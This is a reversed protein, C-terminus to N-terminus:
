KKIEGGKDEGEMIEFLNADADIYYQKTNDQGLKKLLAALFLRDESRLMILTKEHFNIIEKRARISASDEDSLKMILRRTEPM